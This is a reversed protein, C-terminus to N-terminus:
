FIALFFSIPRLFNYWGCDSHTVGKCQFIFDSSADKKKGQLHEPGQAVADDFNSIANFVDIANDQQGQSRLVKPLCEAAKNTENM